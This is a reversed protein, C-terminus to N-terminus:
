KPLTFCDSCVKDSIEDINCNVFSNCEQCIEIDKLKWGSNYLDLLEDNACHRCLRYTDSNKIFVYESSSDCIECIM